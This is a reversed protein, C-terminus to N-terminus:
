WKMWCCASTTTAPTAPRSLACERELTTIRSYSKGDRIDTFHTLNTVPANPLSPELVKGLAMWDFASHSFAHKKLSIGLDKKACDSRTYTNGRVVATATPGDLARALTGWVDNEDNGTQDWMMELAHVAAGIKSFRTKGGKAPGLDVEVVDDNSMTGSLGMWLREDDAIEIMLVRLDLYRYFKGALCCGNPTGAALECVARHLDFKPFEMPGTSGTAPYTKKGVVNSILRTLFASQNEAPIAPMESLKNDEGSTVEAQPTAPSAKSRVFDEYWEVGRNHSPQMMMTEGSIWGLPRREVMPNSGSTRLHFFNQLYEKIAPPPFRLLLDVSAANDSFIAGAVFDVIANPGEQELAQPHDAIETIISHFLSINGLAGCGKEHDGDPLSFREFPRYPVFSSARVLGAFGVGSLPSQYAGSACGRHDGWLSCTDASSARIGRFPVFAIMKAMSVSLAIDRRDGEALESTPTGCFAAFPATEDLLMMNVEGKRQRRIWTTKPEKPGGYRTPIMVPDTGKELHPEVLTQYTWCDLVWMPQHWSPNSKSQPNM